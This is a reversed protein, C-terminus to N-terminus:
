TRVKLEGCMVEMADFLSDELRGKPVMMVAHKIMDALLGALINPKYRKSRASRQNMKYFVMQQAGTLCLLLTKWSFDQPVDLLDKPLHEWVDVEHAEAVMMSHLAVAAFSEHKSPCGQPWKMGQYVQYVAISFRQFDSVPFVTHRHYARSWALLDITKTTNIGRMRM